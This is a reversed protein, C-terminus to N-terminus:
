ETKQIKLATQFYVRGDIRGNANDTGGLSKAREIALIYGSNEVDKLYNLNNNFNGDTSITFHVVGLNKEDGPVDAGFTFGFHLSRKRALQELITKFTFLDDKFPLANKIVLNYAAAMESDKKLSILEDRQALSLGAESHLLVIEANIEAIKSVVYYIGSGCITFILFVIGGNILLKKKFVTM